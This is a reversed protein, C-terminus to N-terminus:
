VCRLMEQELGAASKEKEMEDLLSQLKALDSSAVSEQLCVSEATWIM